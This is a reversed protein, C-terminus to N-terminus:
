GMLVQCTEKGFYRQLVNIPADLIDVLVLADLANNFAPDVNFELLTANLKLYQRLLVPVGKGDPECDAVAASVQAISDLKRSISEEPVDVYANHPHVWRALESHTHSGRMYRVILDKSIHTYDDSISVCGFLRHYRPYRAIFAGVGRWLLALPFISKQYDPTVFARGLELGPNLFDLFPQECDFYSATVLGKPGFEALITDTRGMRYAGAIQGKKPDWLFLHLYHQDYEDLDLPKGTGEGVERFCIERLRGIEHMVSPISEPGSLYVELGGQTALAGGKQSALREVEARVLEIKAPKAIPKWQDMPKPPYPTDKDTSSIAARPDTTKM